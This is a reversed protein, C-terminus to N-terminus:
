CYYKRFLFTKLKKKFASVNDCIRLSEPLNNWSNAGYICFARDGCTVNTTRAVELLPIGNSNSRLSRKFQCFNFLDALYTPAQTHLCKFVLVLVKFDIRAEIPLWHLDRLVPTIHDYKYAQVIVRAAANQLRQLKRLRGDTIGILLSNCYDLKSTIFAHVLSEISKRDLYKRINRINRLHMYGIQCVKNIHADMTLNKDFIVGLNKVESKFCIVSQGIQIDSSDLQKLQQRTGIVMADTKDDNKKLKNTVMWDNIDKNCLQVRSIAESEALDVSPKFVLYLGTDDAYIYYSIGHISVVVGLPRTYTSFLLPGLISGQPVGCTIDLLKSKINGIAVCQKRNTLYSQIFKLVKGSIGFWNSLRDLLITHDVTDFAASLDLLILMVVNQNDMAMLFDNQIRLLATETSHNKRYASQFTEGLNYETIYDTLQNACAKEILKGLFALNSVPRFNPFVPDLGEKKLLPIVTANKLDDPFVGMSLCKNIISTLTPALEHLCKKLIWTPIPDLDCSKTNMSNVLKVTEEETLLKFETFQSTCHEMNEGINQTVNGLQADLSDRIRKIKAIFFDNFENALSLTSIHPPYIVETPKKMLKGSIKFLFAQDHANDNIMDCFYKTKERDLMHNVFNKQKQFLVHNDVTKCERWDGELKRRVRKGEAIEENYWQRNERLVITKTRIPAHSDIIGSMTDNYFAVLESASSSGPLQSFQESVDKSFNNIDINKLNRCTIQKSVPQPKAVKLQCIVTTHDSIFHDTWPSDKILDSSSHTIILDLIHGGTHTPHDVHQRLGFNDLLDVFKLRDSDNEIDMHINFDGSILLHGTTVVASEMIDSFETIFSNVSSGSPRYVAVLHISTSGHCLQLEMLECSKSQYSNVLKAKISQHIIVMIGGGARQPRSIMHVNYGTPVLEAIKVHDDSKIWSETIICLDINNDIIYDSISLTKNGVSQANFLCFNVYKGCSRNESAISVPTLVKSRLQASHQTSCVRDKSIIVNIQRQKRSGARVGRRTKHRNVHNVQTMQNSSRLDKASSVSSLSEILNFVKGTINFYDEQTNFFLLQDRSFGM